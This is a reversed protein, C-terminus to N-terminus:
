APESSLLADMVWCSWGSLVAGGLLAQGIKRDVAIPMLADRGRLLLALLPRLQQGVQVGSTPV